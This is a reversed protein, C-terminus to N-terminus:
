EDVILEKMVYVLQDLTDATKEMFINNAEIQKELRNFPESQLDIVTLNEILNQLYLQRSLGKKKAWEDIKKVVMPNVDRILLDVTGGGIYM